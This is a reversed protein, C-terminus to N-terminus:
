RGHTTASTPASGNIRVSSARARHRRTPERPGSRYEPETGCKWRVVSLETIPAADAERGLRSRLIMQRRRLGHQVERSIYFHCPRWRDRQARLQHQNRDDVYLGTYNVYVHRRRFDAASGVCLAERQKASSSASRKRTCAATDAILWSSTNRITWGSTRPPSLRLPSVM